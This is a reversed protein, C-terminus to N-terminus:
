ADDVGYCLQRPRPSQVCATAQPAVVGSYPGALAPRLDHERLSLGGADSAVDADGLGVDVLDLQGLAGDRGTDRDQELGGPGRRVLHILEHQGAGEARVQVEVAREGDAEQRAQRPRKPAPNWAVPAVISSQVIVSQKQM